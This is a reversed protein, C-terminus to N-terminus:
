FDPQVLILASAKDGGCSTGLKSANTEPVADVFMRTGMAAFRKNKV